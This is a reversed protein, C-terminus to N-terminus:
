KMEGHATTRILNNVVTFDSTSIIEIEGNDNNEVDQRPDDERLQNKKNENDYYLQYIPLVLFPFVLMALTIPLASKWGYEDGWTDFLFYAFYCSGVFLTSKLSITATEHCGDCDEELKERYFKDYPSGKQSSKYFLRGLLLQDLYIALIVSICGIIALPPFLGGFVIVIIFYSSFHTTLSLRSYLYQSKDFTEPLKLDKLIQPTCYDFLKFSKSNEGFYKLCYSYGVRLLMLRLARLFGIYIFKMIYIPVYNMLVKSSCQYSYIFPPTFSTEQYQFVCSVNVIQGDFITEGNCSEYKFSSSVNEAAVFANYFCDPLIIVIAIIPLIVHNVIVLLELFTIDRVTFQYTSRPLQGSTKLGTQNFNNMWNVALPISKYVFFNSVVVKFGAFFIAAFAIETASYNIVIFVYCIDAAGFIVVDLVTVIVYSMWVSWNLENSKPEIPILSKPKEVRGLRSLLLMFVIVIVELVLFTFFLILASSKGSHLAASVTWVYEMSYTSATLSLVMYAPFLFIISFLFVGVFGRRITTFYLQLRFLNSSGDATAIKKWITNWQQVRDICETVALILGGFNNGEPSSIKRAIYIGIIAFVLTAFCGFWFILFNNAVNSGCSYTPTSPDNVPLYKDSDCGFINGALINISAMNVLQRPIDGSLRNVQLSLSEDEVSINFSDSLTGTLKNYSLDLNIWIREQFALPIPGTLINHSLTLDVLSPSFVITSPLSGTLGNGSVHLSTLNPLSFFCSPITSGVYHDSYFSNFISNPFISHRCNEASSLGDLALATLLRNSECIVEPITGTLCNDVISFSELQPNNLFFSDVFSGTLQNNSLDVVLLSRPTTFNLFVSVSTELKNNQAFFQQIDSFESLSFPISGSFQNNNLTLIVLNRFNTLNKPITGTFFNTDFCAQEITLLSPFSPLTGTLLNTSVNFITTTHEIVNTFLTGTIYNNEVSFIQLDSHFKSPITQSFYNNSLYYDLPTTNNPVPISGSFSNFSLDLLALDKDEWFQASSCNGSFFNEIVDLEQLMIWNKVFDIAGTFSNNAIQFDKMISTKTRPFPGSFLNNQLQFYELRTLNVFSDPLSGFLYNDYLYFYYVVHLGGVSDPISGTLANSYLYLEVIKSLQGISDPITGGLPNDNLYLSTLKTLNGISSPIGGILYNSSLDLTQLSILNGISSPISGNLKNGILYLYILEKLNGISDPISGTLANSSLYLEVIKSLQGISDPITGGLPNDDLYLSTLKTLNGIWSPIGGILYNSSIELTQLSILNGISSPISGNLKNGFLYLYILEKLNGISDPISGTLANDYLYLGVLKSLQGISDPISGTLANSYLYLGVLKSLQGISDPITGGLPNDNLYLSTLKTLNGISSPIGGILYNSSLDLTQLSILNGISSPISGNLKNEEIELYLLNTLNGISSPISGYIHNYPLQLNTLSTWSYISDPLTGELNFADLDLGTLTCDVVCSCTIGYWGDCPNPNPETFNWRVTSSTWHWSDGNLSNYFDQLANFQDPPLQASQLTNRDRHSSVFSLSVFLFVCLVICNMIHFAV